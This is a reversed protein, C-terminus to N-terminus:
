FKYGWSVKESNAEYQLGLSYQANFDFGHDVLFKLSSPDVTYEQSSLLLFNFTQSLFNNNQAGINIPLYQFCSLGLAIISRTKAVDCMNRYREDM